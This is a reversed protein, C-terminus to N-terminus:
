KPRAIAMLEDPSMRALAANSPHDESLGFTSRLVDFDRATLNSEEFVLRYKYYDYVRWRSINWELFRGEDAYAAVTIELGSGM